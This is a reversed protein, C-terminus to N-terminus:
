KLDFENRALRIIPLERNKVLRALLSDHMKEYLRIAKEISVWVVREFMTKEKTTLHQKGKGTSECIYFYSHNEQKILNYYDRVRGLKHIVRSKVGLEEKLERYLAEELSEGEEIGGGPLEYYDLKGFIDNRSIKILAIRKKNNFVLARVCRRTKEIQTYEYQDDYLHALIPMDNPAGDADIEEAVREELAKFEVSLKRSYEQYERLQNQLYVYLLRRKRQKLEATQIDNKTRKKNVLSLIIRGLQFVLVILNVILNIISYIFTLVRFSQTWVDGSLPVTVFLSISTIVAIFATLIRLVSLYKRKHLSWYTKRKERSIIINDQVFFLINLAIIIAYLSLCFILAVQAPGETFAISISTFVIQIAILIVSFFLLFKRYRDVIIDFPTDITAELVGSVARNIRSSSMEHEKEARARAIRAEKEDRKDSM